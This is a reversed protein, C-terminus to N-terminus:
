PFMPGVRLMFRHITSGDYDDRPGQKNEGATVPRCSRSRGTCVATGPDAARGGRRGILKGRRACDKFLITHRAM